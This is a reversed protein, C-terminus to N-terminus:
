SNKQLYNIVYYNSITIDNQIALNNYLNTALELRPIEESSIGRCPYIM